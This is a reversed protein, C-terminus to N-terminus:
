ATPYAGCNQFQSHQGYDQAPITRQKRESRIQYNLCIELGFIWNDM